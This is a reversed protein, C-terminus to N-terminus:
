SVKSKISNMVQDLLSTVKGTKTAWAVVLLAVASAGLLLLVYEATTQGREDNEIRDLLNSYAVQVAVILTLM